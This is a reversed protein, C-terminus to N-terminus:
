PEVFTISSARPLALNASAEIAKLVGAYVPCAVHPLHPSLTAYTVTEAPKTFIEQYADIPPFNPAAKMVHPCTSEFSLEVSQGDSCEASVTTTFGCIGADIRVKAM